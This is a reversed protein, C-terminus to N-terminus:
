LDLLSKRRLSWGWLAYAFHSASLYLFGIAAAFDVKGGAVEPVLMIAIVPSFLFLGVTAAAVLGEDNRYAYFWMGLEYCLFLALGVPARSMPKDGGVMSPSMSFLAAAVAITIWVAAVFNWRIATGV